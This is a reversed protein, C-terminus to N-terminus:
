KFMFIFGVKPIPRSPSTANPSVADREPLKEELLKIRSIMAACCASVVRFFLNGSPASGFESSQFPMSKDSFGGICGKLGASSACANAAARAGWDHGVLASRDLQLADVLELVDRGLASLQGSRPTQTDLFRTPAFGRLAPVIVRWGQEALQPAVQAWTRTSDPWGHLLVVTREAQPNWEEYGVRLVSTDVFKM